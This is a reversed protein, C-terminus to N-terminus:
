QTLRLVGLNGAIQQFIQNLTTSTPAHYYNGPSACSQMTTQANKSDQDTGYTGFTIAYIIIGSQKMATCVAVQFTNIDDISTMNGNSLVGPVKLTNDGVGSLGNFWPPALVGKTNGFANEGDTLVIAVRQLGQTTEPRPLSPDSSIFGNSTGAVNKSWDSSLMRWGWLLGTPIVTNGNPNMAQISTTLASSDKSLFQAAAIECPGTAYTTNNYSRTTNYNQDYSYTWAGTGDPQGWWNYINGSNSTQCYTTGGDSQVVLPVGKVITPTKPNCSSIVNGRKDYTKTYNQVTFGAPPVNWYWPTFGPSDKPAYAKVYMNGSADRPEVPCGRWASMKTGTANYHSFDANIWKTNTSPLVSGVNVMTTFPVLGIYSDSTTSAFLSSVLNTAATKLGDIKKTKSDTSSAAQNMSTSNDLVMVLELTSKPLRLATNSASITSTEPSAPNQNGGSGSGSQNTNKAWILPAILPMTGKASLQITQGTAPAGTVQASFNADPLNLDMYGAPMNVNYYSRADAQWSTVDASKTTDFHALNAGASLTAVDLAMQMRAQTMEYHISDIATCMAGVMLSACMAFVMTLAGEDGGFLNRASRTGLPGGVTRKASM